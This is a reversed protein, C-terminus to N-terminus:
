HIKITYINNPVAEFNNNWSEPETTNSKVNQFKSKFFVCTNTLISVKNESCPIKFILFSGQM